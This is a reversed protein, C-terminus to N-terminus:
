FQLLSSITELNQVKFIPSPTIAIWVCWLFSGNKFFPVDLSNSVAERKKALSSLDSHLLLIQILPGGLKLTPDKKTISFNTCFCTIKFDWFETVVMSIWRYVPFQLTALPFFAVYHTSDDWKEKFNEMKWSKEQTICVWQLTSSLPSSFFLSVAKTAQQCWWSWVM